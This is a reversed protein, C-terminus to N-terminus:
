GLVALRESNAVLPRYAADSALVHADLGALHSTAEANEVIVPVIIYGTKQPREAPKRMVRGVAQIVDIQSRRPELFVVADLAPVDIGETLVQANSLVTGTEPAPQELQRLIHGRTAMSMTGDMHMVQYSQPLTEAHRRDCEAFDSALSKSAKVSNVYVILRQLPQNHENRVTALAKWLGEVRVLEPVSPADQEQLWHMFLRQVEQEQFVLAVVQYDALYGDNVGRRFSYRYFEPGFIEPDDMSMLVHGARTLKDKLGSTFIRPTATLYLRKAALLQRADHFLLFASREELSAAQGTTRHAEDALALAFDPLGLTHAAIVVPLSQYTSVVVTMADGVPEAARALDEANTTPPVILVGAGEDEAATRGVTKDSTVAVFRLPVTADRQWAKITQNVLAISPACFLVLQGLGAQQEALRLGVLTKGTGPPMICKGRDDDHFKEAIAQLAERQYPRLTATPKVPMRALDDPTAVHDWEVRSSELDDVTLVAIRQEQCQRWAEDTLDHTVAVLMEAFGYDPRRATAVFTALEKWSITSQHDKAQIAWLRGAEDEAVLDIGLDTRRHDPHCETIWESWRWVRVFREVYFGQALYAQVIREFAFGKDFAIAM